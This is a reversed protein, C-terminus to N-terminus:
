AMDTSHGAVEYPVQPNPLSLLKTLYLARNPKILLKMLNPSSLLKKLYFSYPQLVLSRTPSAPLSSGDLLDTPKMEEAVSICDKMTLYCVCEMRELGYWFGFGSRTGPDVEPPHRRLSSVSTARKSTVEILRIGPNVLTGQCVLV